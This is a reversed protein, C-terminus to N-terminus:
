IRQYPVSKEYQLWLLTDFLKRTIHFYWTFKKASYAQVIEEFYAIVYIGPIKDYNKLIQEVNVDSDDSSSSSKSENIIHCLILATCVLKWKSDM